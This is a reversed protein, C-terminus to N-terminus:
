IVLNCELIEVRHFTTYCCDTFCSWILELAWTQQFFLLHTGRKGREWACVHVVSMLALTKKNLTRPVVLQFRSPSSSISEQLLAYFDTRKIEHVLSYYVGLLMIAVENCSILRNSFQVHLYLFLKVNVSLWM